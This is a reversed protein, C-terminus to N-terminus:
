LLQLIECLITIPILKITLCLITQGRVQKFLNQFHQYQSYLYSLILILLKKIIESRHVFPIAELFYFKIAFM